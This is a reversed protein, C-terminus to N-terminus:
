LRKWLRLVRAASMQEKSPSAFIMRVGLSPYACGSYLTLMGATLLLCVQFCPPPYVICSLHCIVTEFCVGWRGLSGM